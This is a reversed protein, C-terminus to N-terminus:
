RAEMSNMSRVLENHRGQLLMQTRELVGLSLLAASLQVPSTPEHQSGVVEPPTHVHFGKPMDNQTGLPSPTNVRDLSQLVLFGLPVNWKLFRAISMLKKNAYLHVRSDYMGNTATFFSPLLSLQSDTVTEAISTLRVQGKMKKAERHLKRTEVPRGKYTALM